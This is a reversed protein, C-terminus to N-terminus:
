HRPAEPDSPPATQTAHGPPPYAAPPPPTGRLSKTLGGDDDYAEAPENGGPGAGPAPPFGSLRTTAEDPPPGLRTTADDAPTSGYSAGYSPPGSTPPGYSPSPGYSPAANPPSYPQSPAGYQQAPPGYPQSDYAAAGAGPAQSALQGPTGYTAGQQRDVARWRRPSFLTLLLPVGIVIGVGNAPVEWADARGFLAHPMTDAFSIPSLGAWLTAGVFALGAIVTGLPSIRLLLLVAVLLGAGVLAALGVFWDAGLRGGGLRAEYEVLGIGTLGWIVPALIISLILSGLHRM